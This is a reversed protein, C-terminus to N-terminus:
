DRQLNYTENKWVYVKLSLPTHASKTSCLKGRLLTVVVMWRLLGKTATHSATDCEVHSMGWEKADMSICHSCTVRARKMVPLILQIRRTWVMMECIIAPMAAAPKTAARSGPGRVMLV